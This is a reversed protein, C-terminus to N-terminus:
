QVATECWTSEIERALARRDEIGLEEGVSRSLDIVDYCSGGKYFMEGDEVQPEADIIGAGWREEVERAESRARSMGPGGDMWTRDRAHLFYGDSIISTSPEPYSSQYSPLNRHESETLDPSSSHTAFHLPFRDLGEDYRLFSHDRSVGLEQKSYAEERRVVELLWDLYDMDEEAENEYNTINLHDLTLKDDDHLPTVWSQPPAEERKEFTPSCPDRAERKEVATVITTEAESFGEDFDASQQHVDPHIVHPPSLRPATAMSSVWSTALETFGTDSATFSPGSVSLLCESRAEVVCLTDSSSVEVINFEAMSAPADSGSASHPEFRVQRADVQAPAETAARWPAELRHSVSPPAREHQGQSSRRRGSDRQVSGHNREDITIPDVTVETQGQGKLTNSQEVYSKSLEKTFRETRSEKTIREQTQQILDDLNENSRVAPQRVIDVKTRDSSRDSVSESSKYNPLQQQKKALLCKKNWSNIWETIEENRRQREKVIISTRGHVNDLTDNIISLDVVVAVPLMWPAVVRMWCRRGTISHQVKEQMRVSSYDKEKVVAWQFHLNTLADFSVQAKWYGSKKPFERAPVAEALDWLGTTPTSGTLVLSYGDEVALYTTVEAFTASQLYVEESEAWISHITGSFYGVTRNRKTSREWEVGTRNLGTRLWVWEFSSAAPVVVDVQWTHNDTTPHAELADYINWTGLEPISGLLFLRHKIRNFGPCWVKFQLGIETSKFKM